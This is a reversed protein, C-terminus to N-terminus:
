PTTVGILRLMDEKLKASEEKFKDLPTKHTNLYEGIKQKLTAQNWDDPVTVEYRWYRELEKVNEKGAIANLAAILTDGQALLRETNGSKNSETVILQKMVPISKSNSLGLIRMEVSFDLYLLTIVGTSGTYLRLLNAM